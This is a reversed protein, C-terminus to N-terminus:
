PLCDAPTPGVRSLDITGSEGQNAGATFSFVLRAADCSTFTLTATGVPSTQDWRDLSDFSNGSTEYLTVPLTRANPAYVAQGTFWIHGADRANYTFWAFFVVSSKPNLELVIGQGDTARNFWNGSHGFDARDSALPGSICTVDEMLRTLPITGTRGNPLSYTLSASLCHEFRLVATGVAVASTAPPANFKGGVNQYITLDVSLQGALARGGMSYYVRATVEVGHEGVDYGKGGVYGLGEHTFWSGQVHGVGPAIANPYVELMLGQGPLGVNWWGGTLAHQNADAPPPAPPPLPPLTLSGAIFKRSRGVNGFDDAFFDHSRSVDIAVTGSRGDLPVLPTIILSRWRFGPVLASYSYLYLPQPFIRSPGGDAYGSHSNGFYLAWANFPEAVGSLRVNWNAVTGTADDYSFYGTAVSGDELQVGTLTWVRPAAALDLSAVVTALLLGLRLYAILM